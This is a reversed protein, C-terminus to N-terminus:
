NFNFVWTQRDSIEWFFPFMAQEDEWDDFLILDGEISGEKWAHRLILDVEAETREGLGVLNLIKRFRQGAKEPQSGFGRDLSDGGQFQFDSALLVKALDVMRGLDRAQDACRYCWELEYCDFGDGKSIIVFRSDITLIADRYEGNWEWLTESTEADVLHLRRFVGILLLKEDCSFQILKPAADPEWSDSFVRKWVMQLKPFTSVSVEGCLGGVCLKSGSLSVRVLTAREIETKYRTYRRSCPLM